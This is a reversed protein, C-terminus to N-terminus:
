HFGFLNLTYRSFAMLLRVTGQKCPLPLDLFQQLTTSLYVIAHLTHALSKSGAWMMAAFAIAPLHYWQDRTEVM